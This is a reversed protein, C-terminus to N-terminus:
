FRRWFPRRPARRLTQFEIHHMVHNRIFDDGGDAVRSWMALEPPTPTPDAGTGGTALRLGQQEPPGAANQPQQDDPGLANPSQQDDPRPSPPAAAASSNSRERWLGTFGSDRPSAALRAADVVFPAWEFDHIMPGTWTGRIHFGWNHRYYSVEPVMEAFLRNMGRQLHFFWLPVNPHHISAMSKGHRPKAEFSFCSCASLFVHQKGSPHEERHDEPTYRSRTVLILISIEVRLCIDARLQYRFSESMNSGAPLPPTPSGEVDQEQLLYFDEQCLMGLLRLPQASWEDLYFTHSYGVCITSISDRRGGGGGEGARRLQYRTPYRRRLWQIAMELLEAEAAHARGDTVYVLDAHELLLTRKM